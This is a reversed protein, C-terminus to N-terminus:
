ITSTDVGTLIINDALETFRVHVGTLRIRLVYMCATGFGMCSKEGFGMRHGLACFMLSTLIEIVFEDSNRDWNVLGELLM